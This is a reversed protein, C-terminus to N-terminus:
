TMALMSMFINSAGRLARWIGHHHGLEVVGLPGLSSLERGGVGDQLHDVGKELNLHASAVLGDNDHALVFAIALM